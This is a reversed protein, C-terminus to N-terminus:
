EAMRHKLQLAKARDNGKGDQAFTKNFPKGTVIGWNATESIYCHVDQLIRHQRSEIGGVQVNVGEQM